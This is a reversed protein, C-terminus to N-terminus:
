QGQLVLQGVGVQISQSADVQVPQVLQWSCLFYGTTGSSVTVMAAWQIPALMSSSFPGFTIVNSNSSQSPYDSTADTFTISQRSYGATTLEALDSILVAGAQVPDATCLALYRPAQANATVSVWAAGDWLSVTSTSAVDIWYVNPSVPASPTSTEVLPYSLGALDNVLGVDGWQALQSTM